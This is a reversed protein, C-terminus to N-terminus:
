RPGSCLINLTLNTATAAVGCRINIASTTVSRVFCGSQDWDGGTVPTTSCRPLDTFMGSTINVTCQGAASGNSVSSIWSGSQANIASASNSCHIRASEHREQGSTNSTVSGVLVPAPTYYNLPYVEFHIDRQGVSSSRDANINSNLPTGSVAQEYMLRIVKTGASSFTFTGCVRFPFAAEDVAASGNYKYSQLRSRGEQVVTTSTTSTEVLQFAGQISDGVSDLSVVHNFSACALVDGAVPLSFSVGVSEAAASCTTGSPATGSACPIQATLNGAGSNNVLDLSNSEISTYSTVASTGLSPNAGGINADVKWAVQDPRYALETTTPYRYVQIQFSEGQAVIQAPASASNPQGQVQITINSQATTYEIVGEIMPVILDSSASLGSRQDKTNNTGDTFRWYVSGANTTSKLFTGIAIIKYKGPSLSAFRIGPIQTAPALALGTLDSGSPLTCDSDTPFNTYALTSQTWTCNSAQWKITGVLESQAVESINDPQGVYWNDTNIAALSSGRLELVLSGSTPCIFNITLPKAYTPVDTITKTAITTSGDTVNVIYGSAGDKYYLRAMCNNGRLGVPITLLKTKLYQNSGGATFTAHAGDFMPSSTTVTFTGTTSYGNKGSEFSWNEILNVRPLSNRQSQTTQAAASLTLLILLFGILYRM